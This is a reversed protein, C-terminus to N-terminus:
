AYACFELLLTRTAGSRSKYKLGYAGPFSHELTVISLNNEPPITPVGIVEETAPDIVEVFMEEDDDISM